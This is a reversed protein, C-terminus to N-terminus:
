VVRERVTQLVRLVNVAVHEHEHQEAMAHRESKKSRGRESGVKEGRERQTRREKGGHSFLFSFISKAARARRQKFAFSTGVAVLRAALWGVVGVDGATAAPIM